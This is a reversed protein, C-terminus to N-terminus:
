CYAFECFHFNPISFIWLLQISPHAEHSSEYMDRFKPSQPIITKLNLGAQVICRTGYWNLSYSVTEFGVLWEGGSFFWFGFCVVMLIFYLIIFVLLLSNLQDATTEYHITHLHFSM